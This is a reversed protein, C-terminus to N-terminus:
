SLHTVHVQGTALGITWASLTGINYDTNSASVVIAGRPFQPFSANDLVQIQATGGCSNTWGSMDAYVGWQNNYITFTSAGTPTFVCQQKLGRYNVSVSGFAGYGPVTGAFGEFGYQLSAGKVTSGANGGFTAFDSYWYQTAAAQPDTVDLGSNNADVFAHVTDVGAVTGTDTFTATGLGSSFPHTGTPSNVGTVAFDIPIFSMAPTLTATFTRSTHIANFMGTPAVAVDFNGYDALASVEGASLSVDYLRMEDLGGNFYNAGGFDTHNVLGFWWGKTTYMPAGIAQSGESSGNYYVTANAGDYVVALHFWSGLPPDAFATYSFTGGNGRNHAVILDDTGAQVYVEIDNANTAGRFAIPQFTALPTAATVDVWTSITYAGTMGLDATANVSAYADTGNLSLSGTNHAVDGTSAAGISAGGQLTADYGNVLDATVSASASNMPWYGVLGDATAAASAPQAGFWMGAALALMAGKVAHSTARRWISGSSTSM